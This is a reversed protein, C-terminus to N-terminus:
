KPMSAPTFQHLFEEDDCPMANVGNQERVPTDVGVLDIVDGPLKKLVLENLENADQKLRMKSRPHPEESTEVCHKKLTESIIDQKSGGPVVSLLQCWDGGFVMTVRGFLQSSNEPRAMDRLLREVCKVAFRSQVSTEDWIIVDVDRLTVGLSSSADVNAVSTASLRKVPISFTSHATRGHLLLTAAIGTSAVSLVSKKHYELVRILTNFTYTKGCGAKGYVFVFRNGSTKPRSAAEVVEEVLFRQKEDLMSLDPVNFHPRVDKAGDIDDIDARREHDMAIESHLEELISGLGCDEISMGNTKIINEIAGFSEM